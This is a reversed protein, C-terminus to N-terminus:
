VVSKRDAIPVHIYFIKQSLGQDGDIPAYFFVLALALAMLAAASWALVPLQIHRLRAPM